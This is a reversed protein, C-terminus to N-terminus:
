SGTSTYHRVGLVEFVRISGALFLVGSLPCLLQFLRGSGLPDEIGLLLLVPFYTVCALPVAYTFLRRFWTEYIAFPYQSAEVGGYTLTNMMELSEVPWFCLTAQLIFLAIFLCVACAIIYGVLVLSEPTFAVDVNVLGVVLFVAGQCLRGVRRLALEHGLLQLNLSRPRLLLRDFQGLRIYDSGFRDFGTSLADAIAFSVNVLGYFVLVQYLSWHELSGFRAFLAWIALVGLATALIQASVNLLFSVKYQMQSKISTAIFRGYMALDGM